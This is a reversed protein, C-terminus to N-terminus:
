KVYNFIGSPLFISDRDLQCKLKGKVYSVSQLHVTDPLYNRSVITVSQTICSSFLLSIFSHAIFFLFFGFDLRKNRLGTVKYRLYKKKVFYSGKFFSIAFHLQNLFIDPM